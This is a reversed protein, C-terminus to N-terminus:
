EKIGFHRWHRELVYRSLVPGVVSVEHQEMQEAIEYFDMEGEDDALENRVIEEITDHSTAELLRM